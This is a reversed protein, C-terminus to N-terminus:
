NLADTMSVRKGNKYSVIWAGKVGMERMLQKFKEAENYTAFIGLTYKMTGDDDIEGGFNRHNNFYQSLDFKKYAGIQVKFTINGGNENNYSQIEIGDTTIASDRRIAMLSLSDKEAECITLM